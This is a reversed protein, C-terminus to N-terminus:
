EAEDELREGNLVRKFADACWQQFDYTGVDPTQFKAALKKVAHLVTTHDRGGFYAGIDPLSRITLGRCLFMAVQRPWVISATRRASKIDVASVNYAACVARLIDKMFIQQNSKEPRCEYDAPIFDLRPLSNEQPKPAAAAAEAIARLLRDKERQKRKEEALAARREAEQQEQLRYTLLQQAERQRRLEYTTSVGRFERPLIVPLPEERQFERAMGASGTFKGADWAKAAEESERWYDLLDGTDAYNGM